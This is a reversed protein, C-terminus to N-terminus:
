NPLLCGQEPHGIFDDIRGNYYSPVLNKSFLGDDSSKCILTDKRHEASAQEETVMGDHGHNPKVEQEARQAGLDDTPALEPSIRGPFVKPANDM